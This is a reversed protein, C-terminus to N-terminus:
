KLCLMFFIYIDLGLVKKYATEDATVLYKGYSYREQPLSKNEGLFLDM